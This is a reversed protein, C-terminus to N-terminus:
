LEEVFRLLEDFGGRLYREIGIGAKNIVCDTVLFVRMGLREAVMDEGVDNGVMLCEDPSVGLNRTVELYYDPNPKCFHSNEYTTYLEFEEPSLGTWGIRTRTATDPFIPNTALAVRLGRAKIERVAKASKPNKGCFQEASRFDVNYFEEFLQKDVLAREGYIASFKDWFATENTRSGDNEVMAATGAWISDVLSKPEYGHPALKKALLKFYGGTFVDQDMPLLTGDLDFLVTTLKTNKM